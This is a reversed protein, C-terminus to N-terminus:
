RTPAASASSDHRFFVDVRMGTLLPTNGDLAALVELVEVDNPRRPGRSTIRPTGLAPAVQTVVGEFDKDPFADARVVVRQGVRIKTVDREEVEARVRLSSLDGFLLLAADPSPQAMEGVRAWVNLISGNAPARVRTKEIANEVQAVDTRAIWLASELRTPLPLGPKALVADLTARDETAKKQAATLKDRAAKLANDDGGGHTAQRYADDFAQQAAFRARESDNLADEAVRREQALGTAPEEDRELLRVQAESIAADLKPGLDDADLLVLPDGATVKDNTAVNVDVIRGPVESSVRVEGDKPEVRGTASAAWVPRTMLADAAHVSDAQAEGGLRPALQNLTVSTVIAAIAAAAVATVTPDLKAM